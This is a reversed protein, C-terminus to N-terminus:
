WQEDELPLEIKRDRWHSKMADYLITRCFPLLEGRTSDHHELAKRLSSSVIDEADQFSIGRSLALRLLADWIRKLKLRQRESSIKITTAESHPKYYNVCVTLSKPPETALSPGM